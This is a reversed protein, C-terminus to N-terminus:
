GIEFPEKAPYWDFNPWKMGISFGPYFLGGSWIIVTGVIVKWKSGNPLNSWYNHNWNQHCINRWFNYQFYPDDKNKIFNNNSINYLEAWKMWIPVENKIFNNSLITGGHSSYIQLGCTNEVFTNKEIRLPDWMSIGVENKTFNNNIISNGNVAGVIGCYNNKLTNNVLVNHHHDGYFRIGNSNNNLTNGIILNRETNIRIGGDHIETGCSQITFRFVTVNGISINIVTGIGKGDIITSYGDEGFLYIRRHVEINEYYTGNYVFVTDGDSAADIADQIATFDEQPNDPGEGPVDDVYIIHGLPKLIFDRTTNEDIPMEVNVTSYGRKSASITWLCDVIPIHGIYYYGSSDSNNMYTFEGCSAKITANEISHMNTDYVYGFLSGKESNLIRSPEQTQASLNAVVSTSALLLMVGIVCGKGGSKM